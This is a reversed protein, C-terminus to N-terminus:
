YKRGLPQSVETRALVPHVNRGFLATCCVLWAALNGRRAVRTRWFTRRLFFERPFTGSDFHAADSSSAFPYRVAADRPVTYRSRSRAVVFASDVVTRNLRAASIFSAPWHAARARSGSTTIRYATKVANLVVVFVVVFFSSVHNVPFIWKEWSLM